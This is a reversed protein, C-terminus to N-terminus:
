GSRLKARNRAVFATSPGRLPEYSGRSEPGKEGSINCPVESVPCLIVTRLGWFGYFLDDCIGGWVAGACGAAAVGRQVV